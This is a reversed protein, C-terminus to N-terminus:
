TGRGAPVWWFPRGRRAALTPVIRTARIDAAPPVGLAVAMIEELRQMGTLVLSAFTGAPTFAAAAVAPAGHVVASRSAERPPGGANVEERFHRAVLINYDTGIAMVFLTPWQWSALIPFIRAMGHKPADRM